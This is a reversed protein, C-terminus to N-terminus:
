ANRMEIRRYTSDINKCIVKVLGEDIEESLLIPDDFADYWQLFVKNDRYVHLHICIQPEVFGENELLAILYQSNDKTLPLHAIHPKPWITGLAIPAKYNSGRNALYNEYLDKDGGELYLVHDSSFLDLLSKFFNVSNKPCTIEWFYEGELRLGEPEKSKFLSSWFGM